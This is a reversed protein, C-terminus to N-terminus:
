ALGRLARRAKIQEIDPVHEPKLLGSAVAALTDDDHSGMAIAERVARGRLMDAHTAVMVPDPPFYHEIEAPTLVHDFEYEDEAKEIKVHPHGFKPEGENPHGPPHLDRPDHVHETACRYAVSIGDRRYLHREIIQGM